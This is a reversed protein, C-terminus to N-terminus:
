SATPAEVSHIATDISRRAALYFVAGLAALVISILRFALAALFGADRAMDPTIPPTAAAGYAEQTAWELPGIGGPTPFLGVCKAAPMLYLHETFDPAWGGLALACCYFGGISIVHGVCALAIAGFLVFPRSQYLAVGELLSECIRGVVPLREFWKVLASRTLAPWLALGVGALGALASCWFVTQVAQHLPSNPLGAIGLTALAGVIMMAILGLFRDLFVTAAAMVRRAPHGSAIVVAKFSDGGILGPGIYSLADGMLGLRCAQWLTFPIQLARVLWYWRVFTLFSGVACLGLAVLLYGWNKDRQTFETFSDQNKWFLGALIAVALPWRLWAWLLRIWAM